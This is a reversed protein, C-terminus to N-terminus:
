YEVLLFFESLKKGCRFTERRSQRCRFEMLMSIEEVKDGLVSM